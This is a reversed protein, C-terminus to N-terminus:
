SYVYREPLNMTDDDSGEKSSGKVPLPRPSALTQSFPNPSHIHPTTPSNLQFHKKVDLLQLNMLRRSQLELIEEEFKSRWLADQGKNYFGRGGQVVLLDSSRM